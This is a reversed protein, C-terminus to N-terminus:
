ARQMGLLASGLVLEPPPQINQLDANEAVMSAIEDEVEGRTPEHGLRKREALANLARKIVDVADQVEPFNKLEEELAQRNILKERNEREVIEGALIDLVNNSDKLIEAAKDEGTVLERLKEEVQKVTPHELNLEDLAEKIRNFVNQARANPNYSDFRHKLATSDLRTNELRFGVRVGSALAKSLSGKSVLAPAVRERPRLSM